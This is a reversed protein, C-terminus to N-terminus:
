MTKVTKWTSKTKMMVVKVMYLSSIQKKGVIKLQLVQLMIGRMRLMNSVSKLISILLNLAMIIIITLPKLGIVYIYNEISLRYYFM